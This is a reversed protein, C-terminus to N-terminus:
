GRSQHHIRASRRRLPVALAGGGLGLLWCLGIVFAVVLQSILDPPTTLAAMLLAGAPMLLTVISMRRLASRSAGALVAVVPLCAGAVGLILLARASATTLLGLRVQAGIEPSVTATLVVPVVLWRGLALGTGFGLGGLGGLLAAGSWSRTPALLLWGTALLGPLAFWLTLLAGALLQAAFVETPSTSIILQKDPLAPLLLLEATPASLLLGVLPASVISLLAVVLPLQPLPPRESQEGHARRAVMVLAAVFVAGGGLALVATLLLELLGMM